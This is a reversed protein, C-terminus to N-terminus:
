RAPQPLEKILKKLKDVEEDSYAIFKLITYPAQGRFKTQQKLFLIYQSGNSPM